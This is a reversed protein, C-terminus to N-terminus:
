VRVEVVAVAPTRVPMPTATMEGGPPLLASSLGSPSFSSPGSGGSGAKVCRGGTLCKKVAGDSGGFGDSDGLGSGGLCASGGLGSGGFGSGGLSASGGLCSGGLGVSGGM